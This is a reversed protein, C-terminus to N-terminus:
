RVHSVVGLSLGFCRPSDKMSRRSLLSVRGAPGTRWRPEGDLQAADGRLEAYMAYDAFNGIAVLPTDVSFRQGSFYRCPTVGHCVFLQTTLRFGGFSDVRRLDLAVVATDVCRQKLGWFAQTRATRGRELGKRAEKLRARVV